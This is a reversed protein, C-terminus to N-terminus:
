EHPNLGGNDHRWWWYRGADVYPDAARVIWAFPGLVRAAILEGM